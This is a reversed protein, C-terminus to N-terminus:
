PELIVTQLIILFAYILNQRRICDMASVKGSLRCSVDFGFLDKEYPVFPQLIEVLTPRALHFLVLITRTYNM